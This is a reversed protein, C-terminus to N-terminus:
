RCIKRAGFFIVVNFM